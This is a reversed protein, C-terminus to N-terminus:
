NRLLAQIERFRSIQRSIWSRGPPAHMHEAHIKAIGDYWGRLRLLAAQFTGDDLARGITGDTFREGRTLATLMRCADAVPAEALGRGGRYRRIGDWKKWDFRVIADVQNLGQKVREVADSYVAYPMCLSGDSNQTRIEWPSPQEALLADVASLLQQWREPPSILLRVKIDSDSPEM